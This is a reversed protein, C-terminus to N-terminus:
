MHIPGLIKKFIGREWDQKLVVMEAIFTKLLYINRRFIHYILVNCITNILLIPISIGQYIKLVDDQFIIFNRFSNIRINKNSM